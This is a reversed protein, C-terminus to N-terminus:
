QPFAFPLTNPTIVVETTFIMPPLDASLPHKFAYEVFYAAWGKEIRPPPVQYIGNKQVAMSESQWRVKTFDFRFDRADPNIAKWITIKLPTTDTTTSLSGDEHRKWAIRPLPKKEVLSLYFASASSFVDDRPLLHGTNPLYRLYKPSPLDSFYFHSSDPCSFPDGSSHILFKPMTYADRYSYPDEIQLLEAFDPNHIVKEDIGEALYDRIAPSWGGLSRYHNTYTHKVNLFDCVIPVLAAVRPDSSATLWSAWARKSEGMLVFNVPQDIKQSRCYEQVCDMSRVIAKAMPLHLPWSTEKTELFKKWTYAIIADESRQREELAFQIPQVPVLSLEALITGSSIATDVLVPEAGLFPTGIKGGRVHVLATSHRLKHPITLRLEHEWIPQDVTAPTQWTQSRLRLVHITYDKKEERSEFKWSYGEKQRLFATLSFDVAAFAPSALTFAVSLLVARTM